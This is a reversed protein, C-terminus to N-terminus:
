EITKHQGHAYISWLQFFCIESIGALLQSKQALIMLLILIHPRALINPSRQTLKAKDSKNGEIWSHM